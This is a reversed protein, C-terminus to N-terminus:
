DGTSNHWVTFSGSAIVTDNYYQGSLNRVDGNINLYVNYFKVWHSNTRKARVEWSVSSYNDNKNQSASWNFDMWTEDVTSNSFHNTAITGSLAM